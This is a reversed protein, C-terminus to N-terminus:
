KQKKDLVFSLGFNLSYMNGQANNSVKSGLGNWTLNQGYNTITSLDAFLIVKKALRYTPTIGIIPGVMNDGNSLTMKKNYSAPIPVLRAIQIGGHVLLNFKSYDKKLNALRWFNIQGQFSTRYQVTEFPKSNAGSGNVFQDFSFDVKYSVFKSSNYTGGITFSNINLDNLLKNNGSIGYGDTYPRTGVSIGTGIEVSWKNYIIKTITSDNLILAYDAIISSEKKEQSFAINIVFLFLLILKNSQM